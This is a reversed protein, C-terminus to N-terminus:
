VLVCASTAASCAVAGLVWVVGAGVWEAPVAVAIADSVPASAVAKGVASEPPSSSVLLPVDKRMRNRSRLFCAESFFAVPAVMAGAGVAVGVGVGAAMVWAAGAESIVAVAAPVPTSAPVSASVPVERRIRSFSRLFFLADSISLVGVGMGWAMVRAPPLLQFEGWAM